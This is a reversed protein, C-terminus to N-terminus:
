TIDEKEKNENADFCEPIDEKEKNENADFSEPIDEKEKKSEENQVELETAGNQNTELFCNMEYNMSDSGEPNGEGKVESLKVLIEEKEVTLDNVTKEALEARERLSRGIKKLQIVTAKM